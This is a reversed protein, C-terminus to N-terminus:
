AKLVNEEGGPLSMKGRLNEHLRPIFLSKVVMSILVAGCVTDAMFTLSEEPLVNIMELSFTEKLMEPATVVLAM